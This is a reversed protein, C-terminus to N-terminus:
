AAKGTKMQKLANRIEEKTIEEMNIDLTPGANLDPPNRPKPRNLVEQFYEKWRELQENIPSLLKGYKDRVPVNCNAKKTRLLKTIKYLQKIDGKGAAEKAQEALNNYFSRKDKIMKTVKQSVAQNHSLSVVVLGFHFLHIFITWLDLLLYSETLEGALILDPSLTKDM